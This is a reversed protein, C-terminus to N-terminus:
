DYATLQVNNSLNQVPIPPGLKQHLITQNQARSFGNSAALYQPRAIAACFPTLKLGLTPTAASQGGALAPEGFFISFRGEPAPEAPAPSRFRSYSARVEKV